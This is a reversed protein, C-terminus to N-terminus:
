NQIVWVLSGNKHRFAVEYDTVQRTKRLEAIRAEREKAGGVYLVYPPLQLLEERRYGFMRAFAENCDVFRGEPTSRYVGAKNREFLHRYRAESRELAKSIRQREGLEDQLKRNLAAVRNILVYGVVVTLVTTFFITVVHSQWISIHPVILQKLAEYVSMLAAVAVAALLLPRVLGVPHSQSSM